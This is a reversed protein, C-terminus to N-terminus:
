FNTIKIFIYGYNIINLVDGIRGEATSLFLVIVTELKKWM